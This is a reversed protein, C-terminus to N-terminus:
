IGKVTVRKVVVSGAAIVWGCCISDTLITAGSGITVNDGLSIKLWGSPEPDPVGHKFLDNAFTM